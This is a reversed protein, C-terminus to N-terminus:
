TKTFLDWALIGNWDSCYFLSPPAKAKERGRRGNAARSSHKGPSIGARARHIGGSVGLASLFRGKKREGM